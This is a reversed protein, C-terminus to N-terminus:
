HAGGWIADRPTITKKLPSNAFLRSIARKNPEEVSIQGIQSVGSSCKGFLDSALNNEFSNEDNLEFDM